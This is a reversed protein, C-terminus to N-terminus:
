NWPLRMWFIALLFSLFLFCSSYFPLLGCYSALPLSASATSPAPFSLFRLSYLSSFPGRYAPVLTVLYKSLSAMKPARVYRRALVSRQPYLLQVQWPLRTPLPSPPKRTPDSQHTTIAPGPAHRSPAMV